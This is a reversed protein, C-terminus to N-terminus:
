KGPEQTEDTVAMRTRCEVSIPTNGYQSNRLGLVVSLKVTIYLRASLEPGTDKVM